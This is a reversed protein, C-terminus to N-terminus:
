VLTEYKHESESDSESYYDSNYRDNLLELGERREEETKIKFHYSPGDQINLPNKYTPHDINHAQLITITPM